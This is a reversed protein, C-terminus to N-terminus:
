ATDHTATSVIVLRRIHTSTTDGSAQGISMHTREM